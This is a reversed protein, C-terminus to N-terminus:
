VCHEPAISTTTSFATPEVVVNTTSTAPACQVRDWYDAGIVVAVMGQVPSGLYSPDWTDFGNVGLLGGVASAMASNDGIPMVMTQEAAKGTSPVITRDYGALRQYADELAGAPAGADLLIVGEFISLTTATEDNVNAPESAAYSSSLLVDGEKPLQTFDVTPNMDQMAPLDRFSLARAIQHWVVYNFLARCQDTACGFQEATPMVTTASPDVPEFLSEIRSPDDGKALADWVFQPGVVVQIPGNMSTTTSGGELPVMTTPAIAPSTTDDAIGVASSGVSDRRVILAATAVGTCAVVSATAAMRRRNHRRARRRVDTLSPRANVPGHVRAMAERLLPDLDTM